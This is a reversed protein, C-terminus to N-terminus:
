EVKTELEIRAIPFPADLNGIVLQPKQNHQQEAALLSVRSRIYTGLSLADAVGDPSQLRGELAERIAYMFVGNRGDHGDLAEEYSTSATLVMFGTENNINGAAASPFAGSYCTDLMLMLNQVQIQGLGEVLMSQDVSHAGLEDLSTLTPTIFHYDGLEPDKFGHGAFYVIVSDEPRTREALEAIAKAVGERSAEADLLETIVIERYEDPKRTEILTRLTEADARAYNLAGFMGTYADAGIVLLHLDPLSVQRPAPRRLALVASKGYIGRNDYARLELQNIGELLFIERTGEFIPAEPKAEADETEVLPIMALGRTQGTTRGNRFVDIKDIDFAADTIRYKLLVREVGDPLLRVGDQFNELTDEKSEIQGLGRMALTGSFCNEAGADDEICFETLEITPAPAEAVATEASPADQTEASASVIGSLQDRVAEPAYFNKYLQAFDVWNALEKASRNIHYGALQQGGNDSHNFRGDPLWALWRLKERAVFLAGHEVIQGGELGYWRMTGDGLTAIFRGDPFAAVGFAASTLERKAIRKGDAGFLYLSRDAGLLFSGDSRTAVSLSRERLSLRLRKGNLSPSESIRWNELGDPAEPVILQARMRRTDATSLPFLKQDAIDFALNGIEGAGDYRFAVQGGDSTIGLLGDYVLRYDPGPRKHQHRLRFDSGILGWGPEGSAYIVDGSPTTELRTITDTTVPLDQYSGPSAVNQWRRVIIRGQADSLAGGAWLEQRNGSEVWTLANLHPEGGHVRGALEGAISLSNFDLLDIQRKDYYGVAIFRGDPSVRAVAPEKGGLGVSRMGFEPDYVRLVGGSETVVLSGDPAFDIWTPSGDFDIDQHVIRGRSDRVQVAGGEAASLALGILPSSAGTFYTVRRLVGGLPLRGAIKRTAPKLVYLYNKNAWELGSVGGALLSRGSPAFALSYLVGEVGEGVPIRLTDILAGSSSEWLRITKDDGTTAVVAGDPSIAVDHITAQHQVTDIRLIPTTSPEQAASPASLAMVVALAGFLGALCNRM